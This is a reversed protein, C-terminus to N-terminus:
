DSEIIRTTDGERNEFKYEITDNTSKYLKPSVSITKPAFVKRKALKAIKEGIGDKAGTSCSNLIITAKKPLNSFDININNMDITFSPTFTIYNQGGHGCFIVQEYKKSQLLNSIHEQSIPYYLDVNYKETLLSFDDSNYSSKFTNNEDSLRINMLILANPKEPNDEKRLLNQILPSINTRIKKIKEIIKYIFTGALLIGIGCAITIPDDVKSFINYRSFYEYSCASFLLTSVFLGKIWKKCDLFKYYNTASLAEFTHIEQPTKETLPFYKSNNFQYSSYKSSSKTSKYFANLHFKEPDSSFISYKKETEISIPKKFYSHEEKKFFIATM